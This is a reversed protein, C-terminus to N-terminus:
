IRGNRIASKVFLCNGWFRRKRILDAKQDELFDAGVLEFGQSSMWACIDEYLYQGAYAEIFEVELYIANAQAALQSNKLCFLEFGQMDLWLFDIHTLGRWRAWDDLAVGEVEITSPFLIEPYYVLHEKPHLLSSSAFIEGNIKSVYFCKKESVDALALPYCEINSYGAASQKTQSFLQPVPEFTFIKGKPWFKAMQITDHGDYSGAEIIVPDEPLWKQVFTLVELTTEHNFCQRSNEANLAAISLMYLCLGILFTSFFCTRFTREHM